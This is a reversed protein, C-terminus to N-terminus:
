LGGTKLVGDLPEKRHTFSGARPETLPMRQARTRAALFSGRDDIQVDAATALYIM